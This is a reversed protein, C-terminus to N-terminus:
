FLHNVHFCCCDPLCGSQCHSSQHCSGCECAAAAVVASGLSVAGSVASGLRCAACLARNVPEVELGLDVLGQLVEGLLVGLCLTNIYLDNGSSGAGVAGSEGSLHVLGIGRCQKNDAVLLADLVPAVKRKVELAGRDFFLQVGVSVVEIVCVALENRDAVAELAVADDGVGGQDFLGTVRHVLDLVKVAQLSNGLVDVLSGCLQLKVSEGGGVHVVAGGPSEGTVHSVEFVEILFLCCALGPGLAGGGNGAVVEGVELVQIVEADVVGEGSGGVQGCAAM